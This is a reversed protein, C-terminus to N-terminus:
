FFAIIYHIKLTLHGVYQIFMFGLTNDLIHLIHFVTFLMMGLVSVNPCDDQFCYVTSYLCFVFVFLIM